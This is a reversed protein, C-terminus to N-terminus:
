LTSSTKDKNFKYWSDTLSNSSVHFLTVNAKAQM